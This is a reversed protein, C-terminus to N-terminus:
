SKGAPNWNMLLTIPAAANDLETNILFRGDPAVDYRGRRDERTWAASSARLFSVSPPQCNTNGAVRMHRSGFYSGGERKMQVFGDDLLRHGRGNPPSTERLAGATRAEPM